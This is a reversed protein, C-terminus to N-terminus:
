QASAAHSGELDHLIQDALEDLLFPHMPRSIRVVRVHKAVGSALQFHAPRMGLGDLFRQRFTNQLLQRFKNMGSVPTMEIELANHTNLLYVARLPLPAAHFQEEVPLSFKELDARVPPLAETDVALKKAADQWLRLHPYGPYVIPRGDQLVIACKDDALLPYGRQHFAAALTSKGAGSRGAFLVAQKEGSREIVIGSSHLALVGRQHLLAAFASGLLFLTVAAEDANPFTQVVVEQGNRVWYRAINELTLLFEGESTQYLVGSFQPQALHVPTEGQRVWVPTADLAVPPAGPLLGPLPIESQINLGFATYAYPPQDPMADRANFPIFTSVPPIIDSEFFTDEM